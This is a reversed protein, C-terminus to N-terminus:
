ILKIKRAVVNLVFFFDYYFNKFTDKVHSTKSDYKHISLLVKQNLTQPTVGTEM